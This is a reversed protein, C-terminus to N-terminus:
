VADAEDLLFAARGRYAYRELGLREWESAPLSVFAGIQPEPDPGTTILRRGSAWDLDRRHLLTAAVDYVHEADKRPMRCADLVHRVIEQPTLGDPAIRAARLIMREVDEFTVNNRRLWELKASLYPIYDNLSAQRTM